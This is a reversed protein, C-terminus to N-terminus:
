QKQTEHERTWARDGHLWFVRSKTRQVDADAPLGTSLTGDLVFIPRLSRSALDQAESALRGVADCDEELHELHSKSSSFFGM